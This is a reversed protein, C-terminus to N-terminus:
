LSGKAQGAARAIAAASTSGILRSGQAEAMKADLFVMTPPGAAGLEDLLAQGDEDLKTVDAKILTMGQVAAAVVPDPLVNREIGRCVVCWEATVYIMAPQGPVLAQHLQQRSTVTQFALESTAGVTGGGTLKALPRLPDQAGSAAGLGMMVAAFLSLLGATQRLKGALGQADRDMAGLYVGTGTLLVTWLALTLPGPLLRGALWIALALFGFGFAHRVTEMWMGARPLYRVGFTGAIFLPIGQGLGLAFLAAAGFAIDGTQAIYLLAGALPATVCPGVILASTFGLVAATVVSGRRAPGRSLRNTLAAPLGIEFFGFSSLALIAFLGAVLGIAWASQLAMQLNGGWWGAVAGMVGFAVAMSLVYTGSLLAGRAPRLTEGQATLMGALIPVMPLVCPTFALLLGFGLFAALVLVAGGQGSLREILGASRDLQLQPAAATTAASSIEGDPSAADDPTAVAADGGVAATQLTEPLTLTSEIPPYCIGDKQCGQWTVVVEGSADPLGISAQDFYVEVQGFVPDDEVVGPTTEVKLERGDATRASFNDRYLYYDHSIQWEVTAGDEGVVPPQIQFADRPQMPRSQGSSFSFSQAQVSLALFLYILTLYITRTM